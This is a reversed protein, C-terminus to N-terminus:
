PGVKLYDIQAAPKPPANKTPIKSEDIVWACEPTILYYCGKLYYIFEGDQLLKFFDEVKKIRLLDKGVFELSELEIVQHTGRPTEVYEIM